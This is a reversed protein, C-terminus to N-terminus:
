SITLDEAICEQSITDSHRLLNISESERSYHPIPLTDPIVSSDSTPGSTKEQLKRELTKSVIESFRSLKM